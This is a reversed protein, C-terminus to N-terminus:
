MSQMSMSNTLMIKRNRTSGTISLESAQTKQLFVDYNTNHVEWPLYTIDPQRRKTINASKFAWSRSKNNWESNWMEEEIM